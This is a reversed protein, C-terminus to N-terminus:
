SATQGPEGHQFVAAAKQTLSLTWGDEAEALFLLADVLQMVGGEGWDRSVPHTALSDRGRTRDGAAPNNYEVGGAGAEGLGRATSLHPM